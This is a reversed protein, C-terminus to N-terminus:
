QGARMHTLSRFLQVVVVMKGIDTLKPNFRYCDTSFSQNARGIDMDMAHSIKSVFSNAVCIAIFEKANCCDWESVSQIQKCIKQTNARVGALPSHLCMDCTSYYHADTHQWQFFFITHSPPQKNIFQTHFISIKELSFFDNFNAWM